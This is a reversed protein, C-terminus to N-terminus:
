GPFRQLNVALIEKSSFISEKLIIMEDNVLRSPSHDRIVRSEVDFPGKIRISKIWLTQGGASFFLRFNLAVPGNDRIEPRSCDRSCTLAACGREGNRRM